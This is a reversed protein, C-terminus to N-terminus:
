FAPLSDPKNRTEPAKSEKVTATNNVQSIKALNQSLNSGTPKSITSSSNTAIPTTPSRNGTKDNDLEHAKQNSTTKLESTEGKQRAAAALDSKFIGSFDKRQQIQQTQSTPQPVHSPEKAGPTKSRPSTVVPCSGRLASELNLSWHALKDALENDKIFNQLRSIATFVHGPSLVGFEFMNCLHLVFNWYLKKELLVKGKKL